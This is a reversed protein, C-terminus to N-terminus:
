ALALTTNLQTPRRMIKPGPLQSQKQAQQQIIAKHSIRRFLLVASKQSSNSDADSSLRKRMVYLGPRM